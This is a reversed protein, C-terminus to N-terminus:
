VELRVGHPGANVVPTQGIRSQTGWSGHIHGCIVLRPSVREITELIARSGLHRGAGDRDCHGRPPSHVVLVAGPPCGELLPAADEESLDFSWAGFPTVPIAGGVGFVDLDAITTGDGHLVRAAGWGRCADRLETNTESNGAVLVTPTEIASLIEVMRPLGRRTTALDGAIVVIDAGGSADVLSRARVEDRHLDSAALIVM